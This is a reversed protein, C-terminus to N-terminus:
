QLEKCDNCDNRVRMEATRASHQQLTKFEQLHSYIEGM